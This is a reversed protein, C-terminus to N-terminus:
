IPLIGTTTDRFILAGWGAMALFPGFPLPHHRTQRKTLIGALAYALGLVAATLIVTPLPMWGLWAGIAAFLKFDGYGMGEKGTRWKFIWYVSWLFLYAGAAGFVASGLGTFGVLANVILGGWLLPLTLQDPLIQTDFDVCALAILIYTYGTAALAMGTWGFAAVAAVAGCAGLAEVLPYRVSIAEACASCRGRLALWSLIPINELAEIRHGCLPCQSRPVFLNYRTTEADAGALDAPVDAGLAERAHRRWDRDLMIPLRHILVNLFSGAILGGTALLAVGAWGHALLTSLEM